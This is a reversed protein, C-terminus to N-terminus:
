GFIVGILWIIGIAVVWQVITSVVNSSKKNKVVAGLGVYYYSNILVKIAMQEWREDFADDVQQLMKDHVADIEKINDGTLIKVNHKITELWSDIVDKEIDFIEINDYIILAAKQLIPSAEDYKEEEFLKKGEIFIMTAHMTAVEKKKADMAEMLDIDDKHKEKTQDILILAEAYKKEKVLDLVPSIKAMDKKNKEFTDFDQQLKHKMGSTGVFQMAIKLLQQAKPLDDLNNHIDLVISRIAAAARDRITKSQSDDYLGLDILKNCCEQIKTIYEKIQAAEDTDLEGDESINMAELKEVAVNIDHFIPNLVAKETKEGRINFVKTFESIYKDDKHAHSLETYLDSLYLACNKHFDSIIEQNTNLEDNPECAIFVAFPFGYGPM